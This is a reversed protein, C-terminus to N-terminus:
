RLTTMANNTTAIEKTIRRYVFNPRATNATPPFSCDANNSPNCGLTVFHFTSTNVPNKADNAPNAKQKFEQPPNTSCALPNSISAIAAATIPPVSKVPPTPVTTPDSNPDSILPIMSVIM